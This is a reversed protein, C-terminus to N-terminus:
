RPGGQSLAKELAKFAAHEANLSDAYEAAPSPGKSKLFEMDSKLRAACYSMALDELERVRARLHDEVPRTNWLETAYDRLEDVSWDFYDDYCLSLDAPCQTCYIAVQNRISSHGLPSFGRQSDREADEGCLPCPKLESM